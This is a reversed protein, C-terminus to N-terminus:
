LLGMSRLWKDYSRKYNKNRKDVLGSKRRVFSMIPDFGATPQSSNGGFGGGQGASNAVTVDERVISIVKDLPTM